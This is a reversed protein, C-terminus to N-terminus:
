NNRVQFQEILNRLNLEEFVKRCEPYLCLNGISFLAIRKPSTSKKYKSKIKILIEKFFFYKPIVPGLDNKVVEMLQHLAGCKILDKTLSNSNRVFNGM